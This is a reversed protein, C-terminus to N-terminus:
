LDDDDDLFDEEEDDLDDDFDDDLDDDEDDDYFFDSDLDEDEDDDDYSCLISLGSKDRLRIKEKWPEETLVVEETEDPEEIVVGGKWETMNELGHMIVKSRLLM